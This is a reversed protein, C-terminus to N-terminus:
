EEHRPLNHRTCLQCLPIVNQGAAADHAALAATGDGHLARYESVPMAFTGKATGIFVIDGVIEIEPRTRILIADGEDLRVLSGM